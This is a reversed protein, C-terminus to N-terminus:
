SHSGSFHHSLDMASGLSAFKALEQQSLPRGGHDGGGVGLFDRTMNQDGCISRDLNRSSKMDGGWLLGGGNGTSAPALNPVNNIMVQDNLNHHVESRGQNFSNFSPVRSLSSSPTSSSMLGFSNNFLSSTRTSGMQSAKQLLATASMHPTAEQEQQNNQNNFYFSSMTESLNGKNEGEEKLVRPLAASSSSFNGFVNAQTSLGFINEPLGNAMTGIPNLHSNNNGQDLWMPVRPKLGDMSLQGGELGVLDLQFAVPFQPNGAAQITSIPGNVLENRFNTNPTPVSTFRASEEALADCFARHTIFSDKRNLKEYFAM